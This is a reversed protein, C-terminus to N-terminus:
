GAPARASERLDRFSPWPFTARCCICSCLSIVYTSVRDRRYRSVGEGHHQPCTSGHLILSPIHIYFVVRYDSGDMEQEDELKKSRRSRGPRGMPGSSTLVDDQPIITPIQYQVLKPAAEPEGKEHNPEAQELDRDERNGTANQHSHENM